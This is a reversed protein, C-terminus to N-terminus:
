GYFRRSHAHDNDWLWASTLQYWSTGKPAQRTGYGPTLFPARPPTPTRPSTAVPPPVTPPVTQQGWACEAEVIKLEDILAEASPTRQERDKALLRLVLEDVAPPLQANWQSPPLPQQELHARMWGEHTHAEFPMRATLM